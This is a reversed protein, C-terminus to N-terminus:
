IIVEVEANKYSVKYFKVENSFPERRQNTYITHHM